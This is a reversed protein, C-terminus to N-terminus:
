PRRVKPMAGFTLLFALFSNFSVVYDFYYHNDIIIKQDFSLQVKFEMEIKVGNVCYNKEGKFVKVPL